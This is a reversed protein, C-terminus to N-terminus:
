VCSENMFMIEYESLEKGNFWYEVQGSSYIVAPGNVRHRNGYNYWAEYGDIDTLAPGNDRHLQGNAHWEQYGDPDIVAPNDLRHRLGQNYWCKIGRQRIRLEIM